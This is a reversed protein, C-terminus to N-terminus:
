APLRYQQLLNEGIARFRSVDAHARAVLMAGELAALLTQAALEPAGTFQLTGARQGAKLVATLWAERERYFTQVEARVDDPLTLMEAALMACLCMRPQGQFEQYYFAIFQALQDAPEPHERYLQELFARGAARYHAVVSRALDHKGPFHHHISAKRIGVQEAIDAYSFAHYGRHQMLFMASDIIAQQTNREPEM